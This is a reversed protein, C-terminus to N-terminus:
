TTIAGANMARVRHVGGSHPPSGAGSRAGFELADVALVGGFERSLGEVSLLASM